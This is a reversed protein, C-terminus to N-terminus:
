VPMAALAMIYVCIGKTQPMRVECLTRVSKFFVMELTPKTQNKEEEGTGVVRARRDKLKLRASIAALLHLIQSDHHSCTRNFCRRPDPKRKYMTRLYQM